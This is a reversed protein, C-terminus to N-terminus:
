PYHSIWTLEPVMTGMHCLGKIFHRLFSRECMLAGPFATDRLLMVNTRISHISYVKYGITNRDKSQGRLLEFAFKHSLKTM